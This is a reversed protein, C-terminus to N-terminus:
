SESADILKTLENKGEKLGPPLPTGYRQHKSLMVETFQGLVIHKQQARNVEVTSQEIGGKPLVGLGELLKTAAAGAIRLDKSALAEEYVNIAKPVMSLLRSRYQATLEAVERQSLIRSVTARDIKEESAIQRNSQGTVHRAVVRGRVPEPTYPGRRTPQTQRCKAVKTPMDRISGM